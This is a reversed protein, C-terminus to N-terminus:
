EVNFSSKTFVTRSAPNIIVYPVSAIVINGAGIPTGKVLFSHHTLYNVRCKISTPAWGLGRYPVLLEQSTEFAASHSREVVSSDSETCCTWLVGGIVWRCIFAFMFTALGSLEIIRSSM